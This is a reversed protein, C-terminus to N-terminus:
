PKYTPKYTTAPAWGATPVQHWTPSQQEDESLYDWAAWAQKHVYNLDESKKM